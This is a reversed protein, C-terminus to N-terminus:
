SDPECSGCSTRGAHACLESNALARAYIHVDDVGGLYGLGVRTEVPQGAAIPDARRCAAPTGDVFIQVMHGDFTCAAHLWGASTVKDGAGIAQSGVNCGLHGKDDVTLGYFATNDIPYAHQHMAPAAAMDIWMEVTFAASLALDPSAPVTISSATSLMVAGQGDRTTPTVGSIRADLHTPSLDHAVSTLPLDEFDLCLRLTPDAAGEHCQADASGNSPAGDGTSAGPTVGHDFSCAAIFCTTLGVRHM